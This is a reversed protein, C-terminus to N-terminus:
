DEETLPPNDLISAEQEVRDLYAQAAPDDIADSQKFTVIKSKMPVGGEIGKQYLADKMLESTPYVDAGDVFNRLGVTKSKKAMAYAAAHAKILDQAKREETPNSVEEIELEPSNRPKHVFFTPVLPEVTRSPAAFGRGDRIKLPFHGNNTVKFVAM